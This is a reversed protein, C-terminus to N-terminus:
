PMQTMGGPTVLLTYGTVQVVHTDYAIISGVALQVYAQVNAPCGNKQLTRIYGNKSRDLGAREPM